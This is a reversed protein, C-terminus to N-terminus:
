TSAGAVLSDCNRPSSSLCRQRSVPFRHFGPPPFGSVPVAETETSVPFVPVAETELKLVESLVAVVTGVAKLLDFFMAEVESRQDPRTREPRHIGRDEGRRLAPRAAKRPRPRALFGATGLPQNWGLGRM